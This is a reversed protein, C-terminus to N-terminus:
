PPPAVSFSSAVSNFVRLAMSAMFRSPPPLLVSAM